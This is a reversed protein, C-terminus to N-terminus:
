ALHEVDGGAVADVADDDRAIELVKQWDVAYVEARPNERAITIGYIGHGAAIDLVKCTEMGGAGVIRPIAEATPRALATMSRAFDEWMPHEPTMSGQASLMTGGKRVADTLERFGAVLHEGAVFDAVGGVYAPSRRDLFLASEETLNYRGDEKRLFGHVTLYDCLIRAGREAAGTRAAVRAPTDDGEAVATFVDLEIAAKLAATQQHASLTQFIREPTPGQPAAHQTPTTM